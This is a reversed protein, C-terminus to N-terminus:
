VSSTESSTTSITTTESTETGSSTSESTTSSESSSSETPQTTATESSSSSPTSTTTTSTCSIPFTSPCSSDNPQFCATSQTSDTWYLGFCVNSETKCFSGHNTPDTVCSQTQSCINACTTNTQNPCELPVLELDNCGPDNPQFCFSQTGNTTTLDTTNSSNVYIGFCVAPSQWFKCYSGHAHPDNACASVDNDCVAQCGGDDVIVSTAGTEAIQNSTTSMASRVLVNFFLFRNFTMLTFFYGVCSRKPLSLSIDSGIVKEWSIFELM